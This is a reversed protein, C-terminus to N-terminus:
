MQMEATPLNLDKAPVWKGGQWWCSYTDPRNVACMCEGTSRGGFCKWCSNGKPCNCYCLADPNIPGWRDASIVNPRAMPPTEKKGIHTWTNLYKKAQGCCLIVTYYKVMVVGLVM